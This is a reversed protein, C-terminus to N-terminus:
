SQHIQSLSDSTVLWYSTNSIQKAQFLESKILERYYIFFSRHKKILTKQGGKRDLFGADAWWVILKSTSNELQRPCLLCFKVTNKPFKEPSIEWRTLACIWSMLFGCFKEDPFISLKNSRRHCYIFLVSINIVNALLIKRLPSSNPEITIQSFFRINSLQSSSSGVKVDELQRLPQVSTDLQASTLAKWKRM